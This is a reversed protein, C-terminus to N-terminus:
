ICGLWFLFCIQCDNIIKTPIIKVLSWITEGQRNGHDEQGIKLTPDPNGRVQAWWRSLDSSFTRGGIQGLRYQKSLNEVKIVNGM